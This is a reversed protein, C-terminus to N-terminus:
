DNKKTITFMRSVPKLPYYCNSMKSNYADISAVRPCEKSLAYENENEIHERTHGAFDHYNAPIKVEDKLKFIKM